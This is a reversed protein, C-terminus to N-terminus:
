SRPVYVECEMGGSVLQMRREELEEPLPVGPYVGWAQHSEMCLSTVQLPAVAADHELRTRSGVFSFFRTVLRHIDPTQLDSWAGTTARVHLTSLRCLRPKLPLDVADCFVEFGNEGEWSDTGALRVRLYQLYALKDFIRSWVTRVDRGDFTLPMYCDLLTIRCGSRSLFQEFSEETVEPQDSPLVLETLHPTTFGELFSLRATRDHKYELRELLPLVLIEPTIQRFSSSKLLISLSRIQPCARILLLLHERRVGHELCEFSTITSGPILENEVLETFSDTWFSELTPAQLITTLQSMAYAAGEYLGHAGQVHLFLSKLHPCSFTGMDTGAFVDFHVHLERSRSIASTVSAICSLPPPVSYWDGCEIALRLLRSGSRRLIRKLIKHQASTRPITITLAEWLCSMNNVIKKWTLCVLSLDTPINNGERSRLTVPYIPLDHWVVDESSCTFIFIRMLIEIPIRRIPAKLAKRADIRKRVVESDLKFKELLDALFEIADEQRGLLHEDAALAQDHGEMEKPTPMAANRFINIDIEPSTVGVFQAPCYLCVDRQFTIVQAPSM